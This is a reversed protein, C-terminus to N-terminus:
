RSNRCRVNRAQRPVAPAAITRKLGKRGQSISAEPQNGSGHHFVTARLNAAEPGPPTASHDFARTKFVLSDRPETPEFGVGVAMGPAYGASSSPNESSM